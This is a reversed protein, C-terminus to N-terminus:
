VPRAITVRFRLGFTSGDKRYSRQDTMEDSLVRCPRGNVMILSACSPCNERSHFKCGTM